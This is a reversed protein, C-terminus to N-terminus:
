RGRGRELHVLRGECRLALRSAAALLGLDFWTFALWTAETAQYAVFLGTLGPLLALVAARPLPPAPTSAGTALARAADRGTFALFAAFGALGVLGSDHLLHLILNGLWAPQNDYTHTVGFSGSGWGLLPRQRWAQFGLAYLDLRSQVSPEAALNRLGQARTALLALPSGGPSAPVVQLVALALVGALLCAALRRRGPPPALATAVALGAFAGAWAGRSLSLALAPVALAVVAALVWRRHSPPRHVLLGLALLLTFQTYSGFVNPEWLTGKVAPVGNDPDVRIGLDIGLGWLAFALLGYAAVLGGVGVAAWLAAALAQEDAILRTTVWYTAAMLALILWLRLTQSPAPSADASAVLTAALWVVIGWDAARLRLGAWAPTARAWRWVLWTALPAVVVYEPRLNAGAVPLTFRDVAVAVALAALGAPAGLVALPAAAAAIAVAGLVLPLPVWWLAAGSVLGAAVALATRGRSPASGAVADDPALVPLRM